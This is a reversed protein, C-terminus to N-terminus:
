IRVRAYSYKSSIRVRTYSYQTRLIFLKINQLFFYKLVQIAWIDQIGKQVMTVQTEQSQSVKFYKQYKKKMKNTEKIIVKLERRVAKEM